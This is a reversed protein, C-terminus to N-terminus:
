GLFQSGHGAIVFYYFFVIGIAVHVLVFVKTSKAVYVKHLITRTSYAGFGRSDMAIASAQARRIGSVLLPVLLSRYLKFKSGLSKGAEGVGRILHANIIVQAENEYLPIFRLTAYAMYGIRYPVKAVQILSEVMRGPDTTLTFLISMTVIVLVRFFAGFGELIGEQTVRFPGWTLLVNAEEPYYITKWFAIFLAMVFFVIMARLYKRLPMRAVFITLSVAYLYWLASYIPNFNLIVTVIVVVNWLLKWTPDMRHFFSDGKLYSFRAM